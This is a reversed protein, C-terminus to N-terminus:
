SRAAIWPVGLAGPGIQLRVSDGVEATEYEARTLDLSVRMNPSLPAALAIKTRGVKRAIQAHVDTRSSRDFAGNAILLAGLTAMGPLVAVGLTGLWMIYPVKHGWPM